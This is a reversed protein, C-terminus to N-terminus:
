QMMFSWLCCFTIMSLTDHLLPAAPYACHWDAPGPTIRRGTSRKMVVKCCHQRAYHVASVTQLVLTQGFSAALHPVSYSSAILRLLWGRAVACLKCPLCFHWDASGLTVKRDATHKVAHNVM